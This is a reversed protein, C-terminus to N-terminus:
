SITVDFALTQGKPDNPGPPPVTTSATNFNGPQLPCNEGSNESIKKCFDDQKAFALQGNSFAEVTEIAGQEIVVTSTGAVKTVLTKGIVIPNPDFSFLTYTIPFTSGNCPKFGSLPDDRKMMPNPVASTYSSFFFFLFIAIFTIKNM